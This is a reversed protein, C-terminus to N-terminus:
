KGKDTALAKPKSAPAPKPKFSICNDIGMDKFRNRWEKIVPIGNKCEVNIEDGPMVGLIIALAANNVIVKM